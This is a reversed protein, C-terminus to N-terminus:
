LEEEIRKERAAWDVDEREIPEEGRNWNVLGYVVCLLASLICLVYALWVFTDDIGLM